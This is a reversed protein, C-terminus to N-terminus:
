GFGNSFWESCASASAVAFFFPVGTSISKRHTVYGGAVGMVTPPTDTRLTWPYKERMSSAGFELGFGTWIWGLDVGFGTWIWDLDM